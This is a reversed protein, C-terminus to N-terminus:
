QESVARFTGAPQPFHDPTLIVPFQALHHATGQSVGENALQDAVASGETSDISLSSKMRTVLTVGLRKKRDDWFPPDIFVRDVRWLAGKPRTM